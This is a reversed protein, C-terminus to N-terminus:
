FRFLGCLKRGAPLLALRVRQKTTFSSVYLDIGDGFQLLQDVFPELYKNIDHQPEHPGPLGILLVKEHKYRTSRPLNLITCYVAGVSYDIHKYSQVFDKNLM